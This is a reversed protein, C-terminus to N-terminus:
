FYVHKVIVLYFLVVVLDDRSWWSIKIVYMIAGWYSFRPVLILLVYYIVNFLIVNAQSFFDIEWHMNDQQLNKIFNSILILESIKSVQCSLMYSIYIM